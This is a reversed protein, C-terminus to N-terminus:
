QYPFIMSRVSTKVSSTTVTREVIILHGENGVCLGQPCNVNDSHKLLIEVNQEDLDPDVSYIISNFSDVIVLPQDYSDFILSFIRLFLYNELEISRLYEGTITLQHISTTVTSVSNSLFLFSSQSDMCLPRATQISESVLVIIIM